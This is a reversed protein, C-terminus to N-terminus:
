YDIRIELDGTLTARCAHIYGFLTDAERPKAGETTVKGKVVLVRCWGCEGNRCRSEIKVKSRELVDILKEGITANLSYDNDFSHVIVKCKEETNIVNSPLFCTTERFYKPNDNLSKALNYVDEHKYSRPAYITNGKYVGYYDSTRDFLNTKIGTESLMRLLYEDIDYFCNVTLDINYKGKKIGDCISLVPALTEECVFATATSSDRFVNFGFDGMPRSVNLQSGPEIKELFSALGDEKAILVRWEDSDPYSVFYAPYTSEYGNKDIIISTYQGSRGVPLEGCSLFLIAFNNRDVKKNVKVPFYGRPLACNAVKSLSPYPDLPKYDGSLYFKEANVFSEQFEKMGSFPDTDKLKM